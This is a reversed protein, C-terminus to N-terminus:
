RHCDRCERPTGKYKIVMRGNVEQRENHCLRCPVNQHEGQLSFTTRTEHDFETAAWRTTTHCNACDVTGTKQFQGGHIDEHCGECKEPSAKFPVSRPGDEVKSAMHCALCNLAGHGGTLAFVTTAHDFPKLQRWSILGHCSECVSQNAALRTTMAEPFEGQHPDRHCGECVLSAFHYPTAAGDVELKQHCDQCAVAAHSGKLLFRATEHEKLGFTAPHFGNVTHCDQCRNERPPEGFQGNHIDLHCDLCAQFKPHYETDLGTGAHCKACAVGQHKGALPYATNAHSSEIFTSPRWNEVVHCSGCEGHDPRKHFQGKHEDRHCDLCKEHPIEKKFNTSEHCKLCEVDRHKGTLPYKTASHDFGSSNRLHKWNDVGHCNECAQKFAGRHPDQHCATCTEFPMGVYQIVKANAESPKHCKACEVDEHKGTLPFRTMMHDFNNLPKWGAVTHCKECDAGLQKAHRDEHCSLCETHLGELTKNLDKVKIRKRDAPSINKANHCQDCKLGSHKGLLPYGTERHDFEEKSTEWKYIRMARGYHETHCRVCEADGKKSVRGHYGEKQRVLVLIEGHCHMCKLKLSLSTGFAHCSGCATTTDLSEHAKSLPGPSVQAGSPLVVALTAFFIAARLTM